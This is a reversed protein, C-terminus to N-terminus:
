RRQGLELACTQAGARAGVLRRGTGGARGGLRNLSEMRTRGNQPGAPRTPRFNNLPSREGKASSALACRRRRREDKIALAPWHHLGLGKQAGEQRAPRRRHLGNAVEFTGACSRAKGAENSPLLESTESENKEAWSLASKIWQRWCAFRFWCAAVLALPKSRSSGPGHAQLDSNQIIQGARRLPLWCHAAAQESALEAGGGPSVAPEGNVVQRRRVGGAPGAPQRM